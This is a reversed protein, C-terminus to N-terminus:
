TTLPAGHRFDRPSAGYARRFARSFDAAHSFGWRAAIGHIPVHRLAPDALDRRARELRQSRIWAVVTTGQEQFLRHLYSVSIHHAAALAGPSLDPEGLRRLVSAQIRLTLAQRHAHPAPGGDGELTSALLASVLDLLAMGIRPRDAPTCSAATDAVDTVFGALLAGLGDRAPIRRGLVRDVHEDPLPILAKPITVAATQFTGTGPAAEFRATTIRTVDHVLLDGAGTTLRRDDWAAHMTGRLPLLLQYAGHASSDAVRTLRLPTFAKKEVRLAGLEVESGVAEFGPDGDPRRTLMGDLM